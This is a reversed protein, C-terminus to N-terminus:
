RVITRLDPWDVSGIQSTLATGDPVRMQVDQKGPFVQDYPTYEITSTSRTEELVIKALHGIPTSERSGINYAAYESTWAGPTESLKVVCEIVRAVASFCRMQTGDGFITLPQGTLAQHVLRPIVMGSEVRQRPGVTNFPRLIMVARGDKRAAVGRRESELKGAAYGRKGGDYTMATEPTVLAAEAVDGRTVLGYVASSSFLVIPINGSGDLVTQAGDVSVRYTWDPDDTARKMGVVSAPHFVFGADTAAAEVTARDLVNGEVFRVDGDTPLDERHGTSLDDLVTVAYGKGLLLRVLDAGIFGCGGTVLVRKNTDTSLM